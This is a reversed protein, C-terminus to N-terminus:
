FRGKTSDVKEIILQKQKLEAIATIRVSRYHCDGPIDPNSLDVGSGRRKQFVGM